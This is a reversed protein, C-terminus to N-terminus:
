MRCLNSPKWPFSGCSMTSSSGPYGRLNPHGSWWVPLPTDHGAVPLDQQKLTVVSWIGDRTVRRTYNDKQHNWTPHRASKEPAKLGGAGERQFRRTRGTPLNVSCCCTESCFCIWGVQSDWCYERFVERLGMRADSKGCRLCKNWTRLITKMESTKDLDGSDERIEECRWALRGQWPPRQQPAALRQRQLQLPPMPLQPLQCQCSTPALLWRPWPYWWSLM